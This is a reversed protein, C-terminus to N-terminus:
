GNKFRENRHGCDPCFKFWHDLKVEIEQQNDLTKGLLRQMNGVQQNGVLLIGNFASDKQMYGVICDDCRPTSPKAAIEKIAPYKQREIYDSVPGPFPFKYVEEDYFSGLPPCNRRAQNIFTRKKEDCTKCDQDFCFGVWGKKNCTM